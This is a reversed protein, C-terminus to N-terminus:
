GDSIRRVNALWGEFDEAKGDITPPESPAREIGNFGNRPLKQRRRRAGGTVPPGRPPEKQSQSQSQLAPARLMGKADDPAYGGPDGNAGGNADAHPQANASANAHGNPRPPPTGSGWRTEAAARRKASIDGAKAREIDARKQHLYGDLNEFFRRVTPGIDSVWEKRSLRAIAALQKDNDPLPGNRWYHMLLLLYAGHECTSLHGTDALYDGVYLPMWM